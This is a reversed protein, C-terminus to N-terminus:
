VLAEIHSRVSGGLLGLNYGGELLGVVRGEGYKEALRIVDKTMEFFDADELMLGGLPDGRKSDFGASIIILDPPFVKEIAGLADRFAARHDRASSGPRLPVNLTFGEGSGGGRESASGTGPYYPYQHTSFYFVSSDAWFIEQTGNGHHVDWDVILVREVGYRAQAYRAGVAANNFLCFGMSNSITAHHGPPRILGFARGGSEKMVADVAATAAGAALRAVDFSELCIRTDSDICSVGQECLRQVRSILDEDHCRLIDQDAASEPQVWRVRNLLGPTEELAKLISELRRANEPHSGTNHKLYTSDYVIHVAM